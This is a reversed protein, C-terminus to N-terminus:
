KYICKYSTDEDVKVKFKKDKDVIFTEFQSYTKWETEEPLLITMKGSTVTMHEITSTGFEYEGQAMVGITANGEPSKFAISKVKGDFYENTKFM